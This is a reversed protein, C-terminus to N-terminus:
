EVGVTASSGVDDPISQVLHEGKAAALMTDVLKTPIKQVMHRLIMENLRFDRNLETLVKTEARMYVLFYLAKKQHKIPYTLRREDWARSVLLECQYKEFLTHLQKEAGATDGAVRSTNLLFLCEYVNAPM